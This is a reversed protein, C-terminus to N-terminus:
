LAGEKQCVIPTRVESQLHAIANVEQLLQVLPPIDNDRELLTPLIGHNKYVAKLLQWVPDSVSAGHTDIIVNDDCQEHGAIHIYAVRDMPLAQLFDYPDYHHNMSNVYLNNVDLLLECDAEQLVAMLFDIENLIQGPAAYYSVNEIAIRRQLYDQVQIIRQAVYHVAEETFPIPLLDYLYGHRDSCYSLHESYCRIHYREFFTKM